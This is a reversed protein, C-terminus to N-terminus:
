VSDSELAGIFLDSASSDWWDIAGEIDDPTIAISAEIEDQSLPEGIIILDDSM